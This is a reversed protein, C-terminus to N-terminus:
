ISEGSDQYERRLLRKVDEEGGWLMQLVEEVNSVPIISVGWRELQTNEMLQLYNEYPIFVKKIGEREAATLKEEIRVLGVNGFLDLLIIIFVIIM